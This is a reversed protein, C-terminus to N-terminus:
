AAGATSLPLPRLSPFPLSPPHSHEGGSALGHCQNSVQRWLHKAIHPRPAGLLFLSYVPTIGWVLPDGISRAAAHQSTTSDGLTPSCFALGQLARPPDPGSRGVTARCSSQELREKQGQLQAAAAAMCPSSSPYSASCPLPIQSLIVHSGAQLSNEDAQREQKSRRWRHSTAGLYLGQLPVPCM